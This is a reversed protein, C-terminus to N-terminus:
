AFYYLFIFHKIHSFCFWPQGPNAHIHLQAAARLYPQKNALRQDVHLLEDLVTVYAQDLQGHLQWM